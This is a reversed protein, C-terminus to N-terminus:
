SADCTNRFPSLKRAAPRSAVSIRRSASRRTSLAASTARRDPPARSSSSWHTSSPQSCGSDAQPSYRRGPGEASPALRLLSQAGRQGPPQRCGCPQQLGPIVVEDLPGPRIGPQKRSQRRPSTRPAAQLQQCPLVIIQHTVMRAKHAPSAIVGVDHARPRQLRIDPQLARRLRQQQDLRWIGLQRQTQQIATQPASVDAQRRGLVPAPLLPKIGHRLARM